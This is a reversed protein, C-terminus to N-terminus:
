PTNDLEGLAPAINGPLLDAYDKGKFNPLVRLLNRLYRSPEVDCLTCTGVLSIVLAATQAGTDSGSFLWNKRGLAVPRIAREIINNDIELGGDTAYATLATWHNEMYSIAKTIPSKPPQLNKEARAKLILASLIPSSKDQRLKHSETESLCGERISKEVAYLSAIFDLYPKASLEGIKEAEAFKRRVHAWCGAALMSPNRVLVPNYGSYADTQLWECSAGALFSLPHTSSRGDNWEFLLYKRDGVFGWLYGNLLKGKNHNSIVKYTTEDANVIRSDLIKRQLALRLPELVRGCAIVWDSLTKRSLTVGSRDLAKCIRELPMHDIFKSTLIHTLLSEGAIGKDIVRSPLTMSTVGEEPHDVCVYQPREYRVVFFKPPEIELVETVATGLVRLPKGTEPCVKDAEPVDLVKIVRPLEAPLEQRNEEPNRKARPKKVDRTEIPQQAAESAVEIGADIFLDFMESLPIKRRELNIGLAKLMLLKNQLNSNRLENELNQIIAYIAETDLTKLSEKTIKV